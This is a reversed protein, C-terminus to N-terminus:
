FVWKAKNTFLATHRFPMKNAELFSKIMCIGLGILYSTVLTVDYIRLSNKPLQNM